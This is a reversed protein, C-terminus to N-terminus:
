GDAPGAPEPHRACGLYIVQKGKGIPNYYTTIQHALDHISLIRYHSSM